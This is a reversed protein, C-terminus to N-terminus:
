GNPTAPNPAAESHNQKQNEEAVPAALMKPEPLSPLAYEGEEPVGITSLRARLVADVREKIDAEIGSLLLREATTNRPIATLAAGNEACDSLPSPRTPEEARVLDLAAGAKRADLELSKLRARELVEAPNPIAVRLRRGDERWEIYYVGETHVETRGSIRVRDRLRGNAERVVPCLRWGGSTRVKKLVNVSTGPRANDVPRSM